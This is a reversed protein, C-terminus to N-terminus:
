KGHKVKVMYNGDKTLKHLTGTLGFRGKFYGLAEDVNGAQITAVTSKGAGAVSILELKKM